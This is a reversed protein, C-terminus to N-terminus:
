RIERVSRLYDLVTSADREARNGMCRATEFFRSNPQILFLVYREGVVAEFRCDTGSRIVIESGPYQKWSKDVEFTYVIDADENQPGRSLVRGYVVSHAARYAQPPSPERCRCAFAPLPAYLSMGAILVFLRKYLRGSLM